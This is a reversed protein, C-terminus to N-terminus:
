RSTLRNASLGADDRMRQRWGLFGVLGTAVFGIVLALSLATVVSMMWRREFWITVPDALRFSCCRNRRTLRDITRSSGVGRSRRHPPMDVSHFACKVIFGVPWSGRCHNARASPGPRALDSQLDLPPLRQHPPAM